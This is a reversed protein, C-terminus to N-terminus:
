LLSYAHVKSGKECHAKYAADCLERTREASWGLGRTLTSLSYAHYSSEAMMVYMGGARKMDMNKPWTGLPQKFTKVEVDIFGHEELLGKLWAADPIVRGLKAM